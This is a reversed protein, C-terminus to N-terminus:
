GGIFFSFGGAVMLVIGLVTDVIGVVIAAKAMGNGGKGTQRLGLAGLLIALPGFLIALIILGIIGSALGGIALWNTSTRSQGRTGSM